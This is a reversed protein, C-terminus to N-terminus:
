APQQAEKSRQKSSKKHDHAKLRRPNGIAFKRLRGTFGPMTAWSRKRRRRNKKKAGRTNGDLKIRGARVNKLDRSKEVKELGEEEKRDPSTQFHSREALRRHYIIFPRKKQRGRM